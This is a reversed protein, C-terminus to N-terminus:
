VGWSVGLSALWGRVAALLAVEVLALGVAAACSGTLDRVTISQRARGTALALVQVNAVSFAVLVSLLMGLSVPWLLPPVDLLILAGLLGTGALGSGLEVLDLLAAEDAPDKWVTEAVVPLALVALGYGAGLGTILRLGTNPAYLHPLSRDALTANLGDLFTLVVLGGCVVTLAGEPPRAAQLRGFLALSLVGCLFGLFIGGMRAELPLQEGGIFVSHSPRQASLGYLLARLLDVRSRSDGLVPRTM